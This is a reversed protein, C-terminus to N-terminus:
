KRAQAFYTAADKLFDRERRLERCERRLARLEAKEESTLAGAPGDGGDIKAQRVWEYVCSDYLGHARCVDPVSKAGSLVLQVVEAKFENSFKRRQKKM